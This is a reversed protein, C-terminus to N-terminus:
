DHVQKRVLRDLCSSTMEVMLTRDQTYTVLGPSSHPVKRVYKVRTYSVEGKDGIAYGSYKLALCAAALLTDLDPEKGRTPVIVHSGPKGRVHLWYDNGRAERFTLTENDKGNRGVWIETGNSTTYTHHTERAPQKGKSKTQLKSKPSAFKSQKWLLQLEELTEAEDVKHQLQVLSAIANEVAELRALVVPISADYKRYLRYHLQMNRTANFRPDLPIEIFTGEESFPDPLLVREAGRPM